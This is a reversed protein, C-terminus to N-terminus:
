LPEDVFEDFDLNELFNGRDELEGAISEEEDDRACAGSHGSNWSSRSGGLGATSLSRFYQSKSQSSALKTDAEVETFEFKVREAMVCMPCLQPKMRTELLTQQLAALETEHKRRLKEMERHIRNAEQGAM